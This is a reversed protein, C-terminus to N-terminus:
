EAAKTLNEAYHKTREPDYLEWWVWLARDSVTGSPDDPYKKWFGWERIKPFGIFLSWMPIPKGNVDKQLVVRHPTRPLRFRLRRKGCIGRVIAPYPEGLRPRRVFTDEFYWDTLPCSINFMRHDHPDQADDRIFNHLYIDFWGNRPIVFFRYYIPGLPNDGDVLVPKRTDRIHRIFQDIKEDMWRSQMVTRFSFYITLCIMMMLFTLVTIM